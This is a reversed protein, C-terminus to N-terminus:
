DKSISTMSLLMKKYSEVQKMEYNEFMGEIKTAGDVIDAIEKGFEAQIDNLDFPTDEVVDHLM